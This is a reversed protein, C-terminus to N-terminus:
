QRSMSMYRPCVYAPAPKHRPGGTDRISVDGYKITGCIDMSVDKLVTSSAGLSDVLNRLVLFTAAASIQLNKCRSAQTSLLGVGTCITKDLSICTFSWTPRHTSFAATLTEFASVQKYEDKRCLIEVYRVPRYM